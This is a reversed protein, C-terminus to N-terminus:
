FEPHRQDFTGLTVSHHVSAFGQDAWGLAEHSLPVRGFRGSDSSPADEAKEM